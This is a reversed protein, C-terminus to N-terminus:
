TQAELSEVLLARVAARRNAEREARAAFQEHVTANVLWANNGAHDKEPALWGGAVLPSLLRQVEALGMGRACRVNRTLDSALLRDLKKTLIYGAVDKVPEGKGSGGGMAVYVRAASPLIFDFVLRSAQKATAAEVREVMGGQQPARSAAHLVLALRGWIGHLKGIFSTFAGGLADAQEMEHLRREAAQREAMAEDSMVAVLSPLGLIYDVLGDYAAEADGEPADQGLGGPAMVVPMFRQWLGDDTLDGFSALRDPQIGGCIALLLNNIAVTGRGVRDVVYAGGDFAQLFFARDAAGGKGGSYKELAGIFGALEDRVMGLGRDQNALIGQVAEMTGDHTAYRIPPRPPEGRDEKPLDKWAAMRAGYDRLAIAQRRELPAWAAKMAPSKRASSAGILAVWLTPPVSWGDHRKMRLRSRGDLAVSLASLCCMAVAAPDCGISRARSAAYAALEAPLADMPFALPRLTDWPDFPAGAFPAAPGDGTVEHQQDPVGWKRRGGEIAKAVEAQTQAVTYGPLTFGEAAALIEANSWGRGIWHAVLRVMNNHWQDGAKIREMLGRATNLGPLISSPAFPAPAAPPAAEAPSPAQPLSRTLFEISYAQPRGAPVILQTMEPVRGPKSPWAITGPLRMLRTPNTVSSDGQYLWVVRENLAKIAVPNECVGELRWFCQARWHPHRGTEVWASPRIITEVKGARDFAGADDLDGWIGPSQVFDADTAATSGLGERVTSARVYCSQGPVSNIAAVFDGIEDSGIPFTRFETLGGTKANRWGIQIEGRTCHHFWHDCFEQIVLSDPQLSNHAASM